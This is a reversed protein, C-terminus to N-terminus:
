YAQYTGSGPQQYANVPVNPAPSSVGVTYGPPPHINSRDHCHFNCGVLTRPDQIGRSQAGTFHREVVDCLIEPTRTFTARACPTLGENATYHFFAFAHIYYDYLPCDRPLACKNYYTEPGFRTNTSVHFARLTDMILDALEYVHFKFSLVYLKTLPEDSQGLSGFRPVGDINGAYVWEILHQVTVPDKQLDIADNQAKKTDSSSSNRFYGVKEYLLKRHVPISRM